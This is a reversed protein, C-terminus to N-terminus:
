VAGCKDASGAHQYSPRTCCYPGRAQVRGSVAVSKWVQMSIVRDPMYLSFAKHGDARYCHVTNNMCGVKFTHSPPPATTLSQRTTPSSARTHPHHTDVLCLPQHSGRGEGGRGEERGSKRGGGHRGQEPMCGGWGRRGGGGKGGVMVDKNLRTLGVAPSELQIITQSVEGNRIVYLQVAACPPCMHHTPFQTFVFLQLAACIPPPSQVGGRSCGWRQGCESGWVKRRM